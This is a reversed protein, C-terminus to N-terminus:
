YLETSLARTLRALALASQTEDLIRQINAVKGVLDNVSSVDRSTELAIQAAADDLTRAMDRAIGEVRETASAVEPTITANM